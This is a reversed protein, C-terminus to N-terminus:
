FGIINANVATFFKAIFAHGYRQKLLPRKQGRALMLAGYRRKLM